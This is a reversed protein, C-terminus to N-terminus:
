LGGLAASIHYVVLPSHKENLVIQWTDKQVNHWIHVSAEHVTWSDAISDLYPRIKGCEGAHSRLEIAPVPSLNPFILWPLIQASTLSNASCSAWTKLM